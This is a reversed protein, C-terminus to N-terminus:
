PTAPPTDDAANAVTNFTSFCHAIGAACSSALLLRRHLSTSSEFLPKQNKDQADSVCCSPFIIKKTKCVRLPSLQAFGHPPAFQSTGAIFLLLAPIMQHREKPRIHDSGASRAAGSLALDHFLWGLGKRREMLIVPLRLCM